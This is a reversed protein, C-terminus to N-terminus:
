SGAVPTQVTPVTAAEALWVRVMVAVTALGAACVLVAVMEAASWNSGCVPLSVDLAVSVGCCASRCTLLVTLLGVGLTPSM